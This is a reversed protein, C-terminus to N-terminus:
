TERRVIKKSGGVGGSRSCRGRGGGVVDNDAAADRVDDDDADKKRNFKVAPPTFHKPQRLQQKYTADSSHLATSGDNDDNRKEDRFEDSRFTPPRVRRVDDGDEGEDDDRTVKFCSIDLGNCIDNLINYCYHLLNLSTTVLCIWLSFHDTILNFRQGIVYHGVLIALCYDCLTMESRSVHSIVIKVSLKVAVVASTAVFLVPYKDLACDESSHIILLGLTILSIMPALPSIVSTDAVTSGNKGVGGEVLVVNLHGYSFFIGVLLSITHGIWVEFDWIHSGFIGTIFFLLIASFRAEMIDFIQYNIVGSCYTQWHTAYYAFLVIMVLVYMVLAHTGLKLTTGVAVIVFANSIADSCHNFVEKLLTQGVNNNGSVVYCHTQKEDISDLAQYVFLGLACLHFTWKPVDSRADQSYYLLVMTTLGNFILGILTIANPSLSYPVFEGMLKWFPQLFPELFSQGFHHCGQKNTIIKQLQESNLIHGSSLHQKRALKENKQQLNLSEKASHHRHYERTEGGKDIQHGFSENSNSIYQRNFVSPKM